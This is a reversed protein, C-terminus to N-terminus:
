SATTRRPRKEDSELWRIFIFTLIVFYILSGPVWMILGALQQDDMISLGWVRPVNLYSPYLLFNAFTIIAGLITPPLTQLFLYVCQLPPSLPPLEEMPSVLPWWMLVASFFFMAHELIHIPLSQLTADYLRPFHWAAFILNAAFFALVPHTVARALDRVLPLRVLPRLLWAPTGLLLLPPALMTLLMHQVMHMTLLYSGLTDVPSILAVVLALTGGLFFVIQRRAVRASDPILHRLPGVCALYFWTQLVLVTLLGPELNWLYWPM